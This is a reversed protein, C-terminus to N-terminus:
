PPIFLIFLLLKLFSDALGLAALDGAGIAM